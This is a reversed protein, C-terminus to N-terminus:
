SQILIMLAIMMMIFVMMMMMMMMRKDDEDDDCGDDDDVDDDDDDEDSDYDNDDDYMTTGLTLMKSLEQDKSYDIRTPRNTIKEYEYLATERDVYDDNFLQHINFKNRTLKARNSKDIIIKNDYFNNSKHSCLSSRLSNVDEIFTILVCCSLLYLVTTYMGGSMMVCM